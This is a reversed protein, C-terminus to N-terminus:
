MHTCHCFHYMYEQDLCCIPKHLAMWAGSCCIDLPKIWNGQSCSMDLLISICDSNILGGSTLCQQSAYISRSVSMEISTIVNSFNVSLGRAKLSAYIMGLESCHFCVGRSFDCDSPQSTFMAHDYALLWAKDSKQLGFMCASPNLLVCLTTPIFVLLGPRRRFALWWQVPMMGISVFTLTGDPSQVIETWEIHM